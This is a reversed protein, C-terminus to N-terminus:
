SADEEECCAQGQLAAALAEADSFIGEGIREEILKATQENSGDKSRYNQLTGKIILGVIDQNDETM